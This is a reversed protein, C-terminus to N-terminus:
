MPNRKSTGGSIHGPRNDPARSLVIYSHLRSADIRRQGMGDRRTGGRRVGGAGGWGGSHAAGSRGAGPIDRNQVRCIFINMCLMHLYEPLGNKFGSIYCVPPICFVFIHTRSMEDYVYTEFWYDYPRRCYLGCNVLAKDKPFENPIAQQADMM